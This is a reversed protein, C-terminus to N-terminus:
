GSWRLKAETPPQLNYYSSHSHIMLHCVEYSVFSPLACTGFAATGRSAMATSSRLKGENSMKTVSSKTIQYIQSEM